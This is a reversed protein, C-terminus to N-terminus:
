TSQGPPPIPIVSLPLPCAALLAGQGRFAPAGWYADDKLKGDESVAIYTVMVNGKVNFYLAIWQNVRIVAMRNTTAYITTRADTKVEKPEPKMSWQGPEMAIEGYVGSNMDRLPISARCIPGEDGNSKGPIDKNDSRQNVWFVHLQPPADPNTGQIAIMTAAQTFTPALNLKFDGWRFDPSVLVNNFASVPMTSICLENLGTRKLGYVRTSFPLSVLQSHGRQIDISTNVSVEADQVKAFAWQHTLLEKTTNADYAMPTIRPQLQDRVCRAMGFAWARGRDGATSSDDQTGFTVSATTQGDINLLSGQMPTKENWQALPLYSSCSAELNIGIDKVNPSKQHKMLM